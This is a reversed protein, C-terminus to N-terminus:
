SAGNSAYEINERRMGEAQGTLAECEQRVYELLEGLKLASATMSMNAAVASNSQQPNAGAGGQQQQQQIAQHTPVPQQVGGLPRTMYSM